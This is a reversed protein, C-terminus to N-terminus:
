EWTGDGHDWPVPTPIQDWGHPHSEWGHSDRWAGNTGSKAQNPRFNEASSESKDRNSVVTKTRISVGVM